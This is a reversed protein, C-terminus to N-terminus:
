GSKDSDVLNEIKKSPPDLGAVDFGGREVVEGKLKVAGM